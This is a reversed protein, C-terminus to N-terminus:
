LEKVIAKLVKKGDDALVAIVLRDPTESFSVNEFSKEIVEGDKLDQLFESKVLEIAVHHGYEDYEDEYDKLLILRIKLDKYNKKNFAAIKCTADITNNSFEVEAEIIIYNKEEILDQVVSSVQEEVSSIGSAGSVRNTVGNIFIDPVGMPLISNETYETHLDTISHNGSDAYVDSYFIAGRHYEVIIVEDTFRNQVGNLGKVAWRNYDSPIDPSTNVFAEILVVPETYGDPNKPDLINDRPIDDCGFIIFLLIISFLFRFM